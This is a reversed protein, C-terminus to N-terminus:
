VNYLNYIVNWISGNSNRSLTGTISATNGNWILIASAGNEQTSFTKAADTAGSGSGKNAFSDLRLGYPGSSTLASNPHDWLLYQQNQVISAHSASITLVFLLFLGVTKM